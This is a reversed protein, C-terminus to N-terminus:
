KKVEVYGVMQELFKVFSIVVEPEMMIVTHEGMGNDLYLKVYYQGDFQVYVSDGLYQKAETM